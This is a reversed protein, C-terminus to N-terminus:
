SVWGDDQGGQGSPAVRRAEKPFRSHLWPPCIVIKVLARFIQKWQVTAPQGAAAQQTSEWLVPILRWAHGLRSEQLSSIIAARFPVGLM